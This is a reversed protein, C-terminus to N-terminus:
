VAGFAVAASQSLAASGSHAIFCRSRRQRQQIYVRRQRKADVFSVVRSRFHLVVPIRLPTAAAMDYIALPSAAQGGYGM